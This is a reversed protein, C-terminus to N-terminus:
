RPGNGGRPGRGGRLDDATIWGDGNRDFRRLKEILRPPAEGPGVVGDGNTDLKRIMKKFMKMRHRAGMMAIRRGVARRATQREDRSLRGDHDVDFRERIRERADRMRDGRDGRDRDGRDGRDRDGRDRDGLDIGQPPGAYDGGYYDGGDDADGDGDRTPATEGPPNAFAPTASAVLGVALVLGFLKTM